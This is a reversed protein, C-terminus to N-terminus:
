RRYRAALEFSELGIYPSLVQHGLVGGLQLSM